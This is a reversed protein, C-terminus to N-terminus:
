AVKQLSCIGIEFSIEVDVEFYEVKDAREIVAKTKPLKDIGYYLNYGIERSITALSAASHEKVIKAVLQYLKADKKEWYRSKSEMGSYYAKPLENNLYGNM